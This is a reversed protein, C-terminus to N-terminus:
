LFVGSTSCEVREDPSGGGRRGECESSESEGEHRGAGGAGGKQGGVSVVSVVSAARARCEVCCKPLERFLPDHVKLLLELPAKVLVHCLLVVGEM